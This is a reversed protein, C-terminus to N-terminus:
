AACGGKSAGKGSVDRGLNEEEEALAKLAEDCAELIAQAHEYGPDDPQVQQATEQYM